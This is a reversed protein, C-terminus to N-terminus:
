IFLIIHSHLMQPLYQCPFGVYDSPIQGVEVKDVGFRERVPRYCFGPRQPLLSVAQAM